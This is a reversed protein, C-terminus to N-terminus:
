PSFSGRLAAILTWGERREHIGFLGYRTVGAIGGQVVIHRVSAAMLILPISAAIGKWGELLAQGVTRGGAGSLLGAGVGAILFLLGVM